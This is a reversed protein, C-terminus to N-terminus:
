DSHATYNAFQANNNHQTANLRATITTLHQEIQQFRQEIQKHSQEQSQERDQDQNRAILSPTAASEIM